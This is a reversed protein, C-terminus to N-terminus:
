QPFADCFDGDDRANCCHNGRQSAAGFSEADESGIGRFVDIEEEIGVAQAIIKGKNGGSGLERSLGLVEFRNAFCKGKVGVFHKVDAIFNAVDFGGLFGADGDGCHSPTEIGAIGEARAFWGM